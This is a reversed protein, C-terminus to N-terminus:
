NKAFKGKSIKEEILIRGPKINELVQKNGNPWTVELRDVKSANGMGFHLIKESQATGNNAILHRVITENGIKARVFSGIADRNSVKGKLKVVLSKATEESENLFVQVPKFTVEKVGPDGNRLVLDMKGDKNIDTKAMVYGDAISDLGELFGVETFGGNGNNRFLRNRQFGAMHPRLVEDQKQDPNHIDGVFSNLVKMFDSATGEETMEVNFHYKESQLAKIFLSSIDQTRSTGSWLGNAVYIDLLGDNNYDIFEVGAVGEGVWNLGAIDTTELFKGKKAKVGQFLRLGVRAYEKFDSRWNSACSESWRESAVYNVNSIAFDLVGDNDIDGGAVGMSLDSNTMGTKKASETFKGKGDNLYVPSLNGRDDLVILDMDGDMDLDASMSSHAFLFENETYSINDKTRDIFKKKIGDNIYLGQVQAGQQIGSNAGLFTFDLPGPFGIYFDLKNDGNFDAVAAPMANGSIQRNAILDDIKKFRGDGINEYFIVDSFSFEDKMESKSIKLHNPVFRVLVLDQRGTNFFDGFIATKVLRNKEPGLGKIKRFNGNNDGRLLVGDGMTGVYLDNNGDNDFDSVSVAYGGRRIAEKRQYVPIQDGVSTSTIERYTPKKKKLSEGTVVDLEEIKWGNDTKVVDITFIGRDNRRVGKEYGRLDFRTVLKARKMRLKKDRDRPTSLFKITSLQFDELKDFQSLYSDFSKQGNAVNEFDKLKIWSFESIGEKFSKVNPSILGDINIIKSNGDKTLAALSVKKTLRINEQFPYLVDRRIVEFDTEDVVCLNNVEEYSELHKTMTGGFYKSVKSPDTEHPALKNQVHKLLELGEEPSQAHFLEEESKKSCSNFLLGAM